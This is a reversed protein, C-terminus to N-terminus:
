FLRGPQLFVQYPTLMESSRTKKAYVIMLFRVVFKLDSLTLIAKHFRRRTLETKMQHSGRKTQIM